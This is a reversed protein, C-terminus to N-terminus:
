PFLPRTSLTRNPGLAERLIRMTERMEEEDEEEDWKRFLEKLSQSKRALEEPTLDKVYKSKPRTESESPPHDATAM